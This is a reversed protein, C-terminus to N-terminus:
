GMTPHPNSYVAGIKIRRLESDTIYRNRPRLPLTRLSDVPNTGSDRWGLEEAYRMLERVQSRYGNNSRPMDIFMNLFTIVDPPKVQNASFEFFSASINQCMYLDNAQTKKVHRVRVEKLWRAVLSPVTDSLVDKEKIEALARYMVPMGQKVRCLKTWKNKAVYYYSGNKKKHVCKPTM